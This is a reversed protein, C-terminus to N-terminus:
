KAQKEDNFINENWSVIFKLFKAERKKIEIKKNQKRKSQKSGIMKKSFVLAFGEFTIQEILNCNLKVKWDRPRLM